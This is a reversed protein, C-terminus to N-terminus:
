QSCITKVNPKKCLFKFGNILHDVSINSKGNQKETLLIWLWNACIGRPKYSIWFDRIAESFIYNTLPKAIIFSIGCFWAFFPKCKVHIPYLSEMLALVSQHYRGQGTVPRFWPNGAPSNRTNYDTAWPIDILDVFDYM